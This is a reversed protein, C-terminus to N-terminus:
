GQRYAQDLPWDINPASAFSAFTKPYDSKNIRNGKLFWHVSSRVEPRVTQLAASFKDDGLNKLLKAFTIDMAELDEGGMLPENVRVYASLFCARIADEDGKSADELARSSCRWADLKEAYSGLNGPQSKRASSCSCLTGLVVGGLTTMSFFSQKLAKHMTLLAM